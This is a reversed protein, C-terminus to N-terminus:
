PKVSRMTFAFRLGMPLGHLMVSFPFRIITAASAGGFVVVMAHDGFHGGDLMILSFVVGIGSLLGLATAIDM